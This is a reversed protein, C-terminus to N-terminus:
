VVMLYYVWKNTGQPDMVEEEENTSTVNNGDVASAIADDLDLIKEWWFHHPISGRKEIGKQM